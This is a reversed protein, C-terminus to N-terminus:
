RPCRIPKSLFIKAASDDKVTREDHKMRYDKRAVKLLHGVASPDVEKRNISESLHQGKWVV